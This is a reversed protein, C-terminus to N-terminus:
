AAESSLRKVALEIVRPIQVMGEYRSLTIPHIDLKKSMELQTWRHSDRIARLEPGTMAGEREIKIKPAEQKPTKIKGQHHITTHCSLCLYTLNPVDNFDEGNGGKHHVHGNQVTDHCEECRGAARAKVLEYIARPPRVLQQAYQRSVGLEKGIQAYTYGLLKLEIAKSSNSM